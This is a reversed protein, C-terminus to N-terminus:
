TQKSMESSGSLTPHGLVEKGVGLGWGPGALLWSVGLDVESALWM